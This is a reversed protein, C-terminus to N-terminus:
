PGQGWPCGNSCDGDTNHSWLCQQCQQNDWSLQEQSQDQEQNNSQATNVYANPSNNIYINTHQNSNQEQSQYTNWQNDYGEHFAQRFYESHCCQPYPNYVLNNDHDYIADRQGQCNADCGLGSEGLGQGYNNLSWHHFGQYGNNYPQGLGLGFLPSGWDWAFASHPVLLFMLPIAAALLISKM